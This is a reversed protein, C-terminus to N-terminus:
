TGVLPGFHGMQGLVSVWQSFLEKSQSFCKVHIHWQMFQLMYHQWSPWSGYGLRSLHIRRWSFAKSWAKLRQQLWWRPFPLTQFAWFFSFQVLHVISLSLRPSQFIVARLESSLKRHHCHRNAKVVCRLSDSLLREATQTHSLSSAARDFVTHGWSGRNQAM